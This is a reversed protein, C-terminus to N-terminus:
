LQLPPPREPGKVWGRPGIVRGDALPLHAQRDHLQHHCARCLLLMNALVTRGGLHWPRVHHPDCSSAPRRCGRRQCRYGDRHELARRERRTLQRREPTSDLPHGAPDLLLRTLTADCCLRQLTRPGIRTGRRTQAAAPLLTAGPTSPEAPAEAAAVGSRVADLADLLSPRQGAEGALLADVPAVV